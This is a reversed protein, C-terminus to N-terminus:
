GPACVRRLYALDTVELPLGLQATRILLACRANRPVAKVASAGDLGDLVDARRPPTVVAGAAAGDDAGTDAPPEAPLRPNRAVRPPPAPRPQEEAQRRPSAAPPPNGRPTEPARTVAPPAPRPSETVPPAPAPPPPPVAARTPPPAPVPPLPAPVLAPSFDPASARPPPAVRPAALPPTPSVAPPAAAPTAAPLAPVAAAPGPAAPPPDAAPAQAPRVTAEVMTAAPDQAPVERSRMALWAAGPGAVALLLILVSWRYKRRGEYAAGHEGEREGGSEGPTPVAHSREPRPIREARNSDDHPPEVSAHGGAPLEVLTEQRLWYDPDPASRPAPHVPLVPEQRQPQLEPAAVTEPAPPKRRAFPLM